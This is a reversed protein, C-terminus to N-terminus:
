RHRGSSCPQPPANPVNSEAQYYTIGGASVNVQQSKGSENNVTYAYLDYVGAPVNSFTFTM